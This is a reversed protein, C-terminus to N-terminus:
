DASKLGQMTMMVEADTPNLEMTIGWVERKDAEPPEYGLRLNRARCQKEADLIVNRLEERSLDGTRTRDFKVILKHVEDYRALFARYKVIGKVLEEKTAQPRRTCGLRQALSSRHQAYHPTHAM